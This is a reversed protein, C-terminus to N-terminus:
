NEEIKGIRSRSFLHKKTTSGKKKKVVIELPDSKKPPSYADLLHNCLRVLRHIIVLCFFYLFNKSRLFDEGLEFSENTIWRGFPLRPDKPLLFKGLLLVPTQLSWWTKENQKKGILLGGEM